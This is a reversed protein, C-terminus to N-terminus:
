QLTELLATVEDIGVTLPVRGGGGGMLALCFEQLFGSGAGGKNVNKSKTPISEMRLAISNSAPGKVEKCWSPLGKYSLRFVNNCRYRVKHDKRLSSFSL